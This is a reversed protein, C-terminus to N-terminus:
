FLTEQADTPADDEDEMLSEFLGSNMKWFKIRAEAIKAYESSLEIGQVFEWGSSLAAWTEPQFAIDNDWSKNMFQLGYPPDCLIASFKEGTYEKAWAMVDGNYIQTQCKTM